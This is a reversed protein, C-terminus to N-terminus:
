EPDKSLARRRVLSSVALLRESLEPYGDFERAGLVGLTLADVRSRDTVSGDLLGRVYRLQAIVSEYLSFSDGESNIQSVFALAEDVVELDTV